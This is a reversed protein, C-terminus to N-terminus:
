KETKECNETGVLTSDKFLWKGFLKNDHVVYLQMGLGSAEMPQSTQKFMLSLVDHAMLGEGGFKHGDANVWTVYYVDGRKSITTMVQYDKKLVPDHGKCQYTGQVEALAACSLVSFFVAAALRYLKM